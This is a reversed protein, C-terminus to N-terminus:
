WRRQPVQLTKVSEKGFFVYISGLARHPGNAFSHFDDGLLGTDASWCIVHLRFKALPHNFRPIASVNHQVAVITFICDNQGNAMLAFQPVSGIDSKQGARM